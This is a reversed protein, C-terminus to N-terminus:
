DLREFLALNPTRAAQVLHEQVQEAAALADPLSKSGGIHACGICRVVGGVGLAAALVVLELVAYKSGLRARIEALALREQDRHRRRIDRAAQVVPVHQEDCELVDHDVAVAHEPVRAEPHWAPVVGADGPLEHDLAIQRLAPNRAV